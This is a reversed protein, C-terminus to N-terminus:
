WIKPALICGPCYIPLGDHGVHLIYFIVLKLFRPKKLLINTQSTAHRLWKGFKLKIQEKIRPYLGDFAM